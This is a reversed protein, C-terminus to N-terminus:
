AAVLERAREFANQKITAGQGFWASDLRKDAQTGRKHDIWHTVGQILGYANGPAAGPAYQYSDMLDDLGRIARVKEGREIAEQDAKKQEESRPRLLDGFFSEATELDVTVQSLQDMSEAFNEVTKEWNVLGLADKFKSPSFQKSHYCKVANGREMHLALSLTNQCVTKVTQFQGTTAMTGDCSTSLMLYNKYPEGNIQSGFKTNALAWYRAGGKLMGATELRFNYTECVDRFFEMVEGPQVLQYGNSMVSLAEGNDSRFLVHRKDWQRPTKNGQSDEHVYMVPSREIHWDFGAQEIWTEIPANEDLKQGLGHWPEKGVFAMNDRGYEDRYIEHSM